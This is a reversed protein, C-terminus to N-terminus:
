SADPPRKACRPDNQRRVFHVVLYIIAPGTSLMVVLIVIPIVPDLLLLAPLSVVILSGAYKAFTRVWNFSPRDDM